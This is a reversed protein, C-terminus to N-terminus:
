HSEIRAGNYSLFYTSISPTLGQLCSLIPLSPIPDHVGENLLKEEIAVENMKDLFIRERLMAFKLEMAALIDLAEVRQSTLIENEVEQEPEVDQDQEETGHEVDKQLLPGEDEDDDSDERNEDEKPEDDDSDEEPPAILQSSRALISPQNNVPTGEEESTAEDEEQAEHDNGNPNTPYEKDSSAPDAPEPELEMEVDPEKADNDVKDATSAFQALIDLSSAAAVPTM